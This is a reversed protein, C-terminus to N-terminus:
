YLNLDINSLVHKHKFRSQKDGEFMFDPSKLTKDKLQDSCCRGREEFTSGGKSVRDCNYCYPSGNNNVKTGGVVSMGVPMECKGEICGGFDNPYNKNSQYFPCEDNSKCQKDWVGSFGLKEHYSICAPRTKLNDITVGEFNPNYCRYESTRERIRDGILQTINDNNKKLKIRKMIEEIEKTIITQGELDSINYKIDKDLDPKLTNKNTLIDQCHLIFQEILTDYKLAMKTNGLKDDSESQEAIKKIKFLLQKFVISNFTKNQNIIQIENFLNKYSEEIPNDRRDLSLKDIEDLITFMDNTLITFNNQNLIFNTDDEELLGSNHPLSNGIVRINQIYIHYLDLFNAFETKIDKKAYKKTFFLDVMIIFDNIKNPRHIKITIVARLFVATKINYLYFQHIKYNLLKYNEFPHHENYKAFYTSDEFESNIQNVISNISIDIYKLNKTGDIYNALETETLQTKYLEYDSGSVLKKQTWKNVNIEKIFDFEISNNKKLVNNYISKIDSLYTNMENCSLEKSISFLVDNNKDYSVLDKCISDEYFVSSNENERNLKFINDYQTKYTIPKIKRAEKELKSYSQFPEQINMHIPVTYDTDPIYGFYEQLIFFVLFLGLITVIFDFYRM